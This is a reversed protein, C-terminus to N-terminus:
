RSEFSVLVEAPLPDDFDPSIKVKGRLVGFKVGRQPPELQTIRVLPKGQRSVVVDEGSVVKDILESLHTKVNQISVTEM